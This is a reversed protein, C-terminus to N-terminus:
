TLLLVDVEGGPAVGDGDCVAALGNAAATSALQHSGQGGTSRVHFRGDAEFRGVVRTWHTKGDPRRRFGDDAVARVRTRDLVEHGTMQRLAPRALLEFSV